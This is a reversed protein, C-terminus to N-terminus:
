ECPSAHMLGDPHAQRDTKCVVRGPGRTRRRDGAIVRTSPRGSAHTHKLPCRRPEGKKLVGQGPPGLCVTRGGGRGREDLGGRVGFAYGCVASHRRAVKSPQFGHTSAACPLPDGSSGNASARSALGLSLIRTTALTAGENAQAAVQAGDRQSTSAGQLQRLISQSALM